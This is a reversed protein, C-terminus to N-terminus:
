QTPDKMELLEIVKADAKLASKRFSEAQKKHKAVLHAQAEAWTNFVPHAPSKYERHQALKGWHEGEFLWTKATEALLTRKQIAESYPTCQYVLRPREATM